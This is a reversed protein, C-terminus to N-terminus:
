VADGSTEMPTTIRRAWTTEAFGLLSGAPSFMRFTRQGWPEQRAAHILRHGERSIKAAAQDANDVEFELTLGLPIKDALDRSGLTIEAAHPRNWVGFHLVGSVTVVAYDGPYQENVQFGLTDRYFKLAEEFDEVVEALGAIHRLM